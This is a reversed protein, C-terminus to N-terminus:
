NKSRLFLPVLGGLAVAFGFVVGAQWVDSWPVAQLWPIGKVVAKWPMDKALSAFGAIGFGTGVIALVTSMVVAIQPHRACARLQWWVAQGNWKPTEVTLDISDSQPPLGLHRRYWANMFVLNGGTKPGCTGPDIPHHRNKLYLDDAYLTECCVKKGGFKFLLAPRRNETALRLEKDKTRLWVWDEHLEHREVQHLEYRAM